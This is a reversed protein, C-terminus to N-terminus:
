SVDEKLLLHRETLTRLVQQHYRPAITIRRSDNHKHELFGYEMLFRAAHGAEDLSTNLSQRLEDFSLNEHQVISALAYLIDDDLRALVTADEEKILGVELTDEDVRTLAKLWIYTAVRPNGNSAEWLLRFFGEASSVLEFGGTSSAEADLLIEDFRVELGSRDNRKVILEQLEERSWSPLSLTRRLARVHRNTRRLFRWSYTNFALVWMVNESTVDVLRILTDVAEFGDVTRLFINHAEDLLVVRRPGDNLYRAIEGITKIGDLEFERSLERILADETRVRSSLYAREVPVGEVSRALLALFTTKGVGKEGIIVLSGDQGTRAWRAIQDLAEKLQRDRPLLVEGEEGELPYLPFQRTYEEPLEGSMGEEDLIMSKRARRRLSKAWLYSLLGGEAALKRMGSVLALPMLWVFYIPSMVIGIFHREGFVALRNPLSGDTTRAACSSALVKRWAGMAWLLWGGTWVLAALRLVTTLSGTGLWQRSWEDAMAAVALVFGLRGYTRRLLDATSSSVEFIPPRGASETKTLGIVAQRGLLYFVIWRFAVEVFRTEPHDFGVLFLLLYGAGALLGTPLLALLFVTMRVLVGARRRFFPLNNIRLIARTATRRLRKRSVLLVLILLLGGVVRTEHGERELEQALETLQAEREALRAGIDEIEALDGELSAALEERQGQFGVLSGAVARAHLKACAGKLVGLAVALRGLTAARGRLGSKPQNLGRFTERAPGPM